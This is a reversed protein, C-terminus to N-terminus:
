LTTTRKFSRALTKVRARIMAFVLLPTVATGLVFAAVLVIHVIEVAIELRQWM